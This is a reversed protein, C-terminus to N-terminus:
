LEIGCSLKPLARNIDARKYTDCCKMECNFKGIEYLSRTLVCTVRRAWM